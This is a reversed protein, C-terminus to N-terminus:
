SDFRVQTCRACVGNLAPQFILAETPLSASLHGCYFSLAACSNRFFVKTSPRTPKISIAFIICCILVDLEDHSMPADKPKDKPKIVQLESGQAGRNQGGGNYRM